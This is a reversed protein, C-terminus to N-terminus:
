SFLDALKTTVSTLNTTFITSLNTKFIVLLAIAVIIIGLTQVLQDGREKEYVIGEQIPFYLKGTMKMVANDAKNKMGKFLNRM